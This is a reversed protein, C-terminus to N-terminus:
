CPRYRLTTFFSRKAGSLTREARTGPKQAHVHLHPEDTNGSNGVAAIPDGVRLRAGVAVKLSGPQLHGLLVEVEGCRLTVHNGAMHARDNQPVPMDPLGDLVVIVEGACPALVRAGYIRYASPESPQLGKARIGWANIEVMDIGYSQGQWQHFRPIRANLTKLHANISLASGGNVILYIGSELPFMLDVLRAPPPTRGALAPVAQTGALGCLALFFAAMAWGGPGSPLVCAFPRRRRLGILTSLLLLAAFTHPAWWPPWMWIGTLGMALLGTATAVLQIWFGLRSRPPALGIWGIFVLPLAFQLAFLTAM